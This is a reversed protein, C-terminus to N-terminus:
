ARMTTMLTPLTDSLGSYAAVMLNIIYPLSLGLLLFGIGITLPMAVLMIHMQPVARSIVGMGVNALLIAAVIPTAIQVGMRFLEFTLDILLTTFDGTLTIGLPPLWSFSTVLAGILIHHANITLFILFSLVSLFQGIIPTHLNTQPDVAQAITLGLMYGIIEGAFEFANTVLRVAFGMAAGFLVEMGLAPIWALINEPMRGIFAGSVSPFLILALILTMAAKVQRPVTQDGFLPMTGIIAAVRVFVLTFAPFDAFTLPMTM